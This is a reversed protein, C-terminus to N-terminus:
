RRTALLGSIDYGLNKAIVKLSQSVAQSRHHYGIFDDVMILTPNDIGSLLKTKPTILMAMFNRDEKLQEKIGNIDGQSFHRAYYDGFKEITGKSHTHFKVFQYDSNRRFFENAVVMRQPNAQVDGECGVGTMFVAELPCDDKQRRYLLIGNVEQMLGTLDNLRKEIESPLLVRRAM